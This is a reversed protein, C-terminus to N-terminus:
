VLIVKHKGNWKYDLNLIEDIFQYGYLNVYYFINWIREQPADLPKLCHNIHDFKDLEVKHKSRITKEMKQKLFYIQSEIIKANKQALDEFSPDVQIALEKLPKHANLIVTLTEDIVKDIPFPQQGKLWAEKEEHCGNKIIKELDLKLEKIFKDTKRDIISIMLRPIVPPVKFGFLHFAKKLVSWYAIEGPGSIFALTPFVYEQMLPRTVVNNSLLEPTQEAVDLLAKKEFACENNKGVFQSNNQELLIREGNQVYFLHANNENIEIPVGYGLEKLTMQSDFVDKGLQENHEIIKKMFPSGIKRFGEDGSDVIILGQGEFLRFIINIFFDVYTNSESLDHYLDELLKKTHNTEGFTGVIEQIWGEAYKKDINLLSAPSKKYNKQGITRKNIRGENLVFAHNIEAFDHDEGAVWFVPLVPINLLQEQEKALKIISIIKHISYLPGTLLGAQQGGIVVVSKPDVLRNINQITKEDANFKSHFELLYNVLEERPYKKNWLEELRNSFTAQNQIDPYDFFCAVKEDRNIYSAAIKNNLSSSVELLEM